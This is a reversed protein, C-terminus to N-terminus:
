LSNAISDTKVVLLRLHHVAPNIQMGVVANDRKDVIGIVNHRLLAQRVLDRLDDAKQRAPSVLHCADDDLRGVVPIPQDIAQLVGAELHM